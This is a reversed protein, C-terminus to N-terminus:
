QFRKLIADLLQAAVLLDRTVDLLAKDTHFFLDDFRERLRNFVQTARRRDSSAASAEFLRVSEALRTAQLENPRNAAIEQLGAKIAPWPALAEPTVESLVDAERLAGDVQQCLNHEHILGALRQCLARFPEFGVRLDNTAAPSAAGGTGLDALIGDILEILEDTELRQAGEVLRENLVAQEEAPLHALVEVARDLKALEITTVDAKTLEQTLDAAAREFRTAWRASNSPFETAKASRQAEAVWDQLLDTISTPDPLDDPSRRATEAMTAIQPHLDHLEHLVDHLQKYANLYGFQKQRRQFRDNFRIVADRIKASVDARPAIGPGGTEVRFRAVLAAAETLNPRETAIAQVLRDIYGRKDAVEVLQFAIQENNQGFNVLDAFRVDPFSLHLTAMRVLEDKTFSRTLVDQLQKWLEPSV